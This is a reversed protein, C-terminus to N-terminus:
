SEKVESWGTGHKEMKEVKKELGEIRDEVKKLREIEKVLDSFLELIAQNVSDQVVMRTYAPANKARKIAEELKKLKENM